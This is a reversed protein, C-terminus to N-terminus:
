ESWFSNCRARTRLHADRRAMVYLTVNLGASSVISMRHIWNAEFQNIARDQDDVECENESDAEHELAVHARAVVEKKDPRRIGAQTAPRAKREALRPACSTIPMAADPALYPIM